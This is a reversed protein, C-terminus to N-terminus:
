RWPRSGTRGTHVAPCDTCRRANSQHQTVAVVLAVAKVKVLHPGTRGRGRGAGAGAWSWPWRWRWRWVVVLALGRGQGPAGPRFQQAARATSPTARTGTAVTRSSPWSRSWGVFKVLVLALGRGRGRGRGRGAGRGQGPAGPRLQHGARATGPTARTVIFVAHNFDSRGRDQGPAGARLQHGARATSPTTSEM